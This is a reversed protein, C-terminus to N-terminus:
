KDKKLQFTGSIGWRKDIWTLEFLNGSMKKLKLSVKSSVLSVVGGSALFKADCVNRWPNAADGEFNNNMFYGTHYGNGTERKAFPWINFEFSQNSGDCTRWYISPHDVVSIRMREIRKFSFYNQYEGAGRSVQECSPSCSEVTFLGSFTENESDSAFASQTLAVLLFFPFIFKM